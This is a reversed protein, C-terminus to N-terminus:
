TLFILHRPYGAVYLAAKKIPETLQSPDDRLDSLVLFKAKQLEILAEDLLKDQIQPLQPRLDALLLGQGPRYGSARISNLYAKTMALAESLDIPEPEDPSAQATPSSLFIESLNLSRNKLFLSLRALFQDFIESGAYSRANVSASGLSEALYGWGAETLGVHIGMPSKPRHTMKERSEEILGRGKLIKRDSAKISKPKVEILWSAGDRTALDWLFL